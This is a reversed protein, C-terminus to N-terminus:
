KYARLLTTAANANEVYSSLNVKQWTDSPRHYDAHDEVGLYIFPIGANHFPYHDSQATWDDQGGGTDHGMLLHVTTTPQVAEVLYKLSPYRAVGCAFLENKDSRAIMDMNLNFVIARNANTQVFHYAGELGSEEKDLAAFILSYDHPNRAFYRAMALLCGVGSANDDAGYFVQDGRRGLHDYHATVVIFKDAYKKGKVWGVINKGAASRGDFTAHLSQGISDLGITRFVRSIRDAALAHGPQGPRRGACSDSALFLFDNVLQTSDLLRTLAAVKKGALASRQETLSPYPTTEKVGLASCAIMLIILPFFLRMSFLNLVLSLPSTSM